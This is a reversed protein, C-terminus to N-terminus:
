SHSTVGAGDGLLGTSELDVKDAVVLVELHTGERGALVTTAPDLLLFVEGLERLLLLSTEGVADHFLLEDAVVLFGGVTGALGTVVQQLDELRAQVVDDVAGADGAGTTLGTLEHAVAVELDVADADVDPDGARVGRDDDGVGLVALM